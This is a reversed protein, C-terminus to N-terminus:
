SIRNIELFFFFFLCSYLGIARGRRYVCIRLCSTIHATKSPCVNIWMPNQVFTDRYIVYLISFFCDTRFSFRRWVNQMTAPPLFTTTVTILVHTSLFYGLPGANLAPAATEWHPGPWPYYLRRTPRVFWANVLLSPTLHEYLSWLNCVSKVSAARNFKSGSWPHNDRTSSPPPGPEIYPIHANHGGTRRYM